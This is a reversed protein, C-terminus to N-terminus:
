EMAAGLLRRCNNGLCGAVSQYDNPDYWLRMAKNRRKSEVALMILGEVKASGESLNMAYFTVDHGLGSPAPVCKIHMRAEIVAVSDVLCDRAVSAADARVAFVGAGAMFVGALAAMRLYAM